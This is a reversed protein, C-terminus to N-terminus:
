QAPKSSRSRTRRAKPRAQAAEEAEAERLLWDRLAAVGAAAQGRRTCFAFACIPLAAHLSLPTPAPYIEPTA